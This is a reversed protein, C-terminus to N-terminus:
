EVVLKGGTLWKGGQAIHVYYIGPSLHALSLTLSTSGGALREQHVVRGDMAVLTIELAGSVSPPLSLQMTANDHAPNPYISFADLLNTAQETIGVSNCGPVICGLGDVKVVWTDQSYGAPYGMGVPNYAAGAAIFGGDPTPLVDYFRGQGTTIVDDQYYYNFMWLSDGTSTTRLLLGQQANNIGSNAYSVGAAILDGNPAEKGAFFTTSNFIAGYQKEWIISGDASDLKALYPRMATNGTAFSCGSIILPQGDNLTMLQTAGESYPGGWRRQWMLGGVSNIRAVYHDGNLPTTESTGSGYYSGAPGLDVSLFGDLLTSSFGFFQRWVENGTADTRLVFGDVSGNQDTDGAIVFGGDPTRKVQRGIYYYNLNPDGFVRTWLTDGNVDFRMLYVEDNGLTDESAGGVVYGGGPITDSCNAWGPLVGHGARWARKEWITNGVEDLRRLVTSAHTFWVGPGISDLDDSGSVVVWGDVTCEIGFATQQLGHGLDDYRTNFGQGHALAEVFLFILCASRRM